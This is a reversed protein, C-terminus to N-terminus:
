KFNTNFPQKKIWAKLEEESLTKPDYFNQHAPVDKFNELYLHTVGAIEKDYIRGGVNDDKFPPMWHLYHKISERFSWARNPVNGAYGEPNEAGQMILRYVTEIEEDNMPRREGQIMSGTERDYVYLWGVPFTMQRNQHRISRPLGERLQVNDPNKVAELIPVMVPNGDADKTQRVVGLSKGHVPLYINNSSGDEQPTRLVELWKEHQARYAAVEAPILDKEKSMVRYYGANVDPEILSSFLGQTALDEESIAENNVGIPKGEANVVVGFISYKFREALEAMQRAREAPDNSLEAEIDPMFTSLNGPIIRGEGDVIPHLRIHLKQNYISNSDVWKFYRKQAPDPNVEEVHKGDEGKKRHTGYM